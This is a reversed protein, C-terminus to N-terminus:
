THFTNASCTARELDMPTGRGRIEGRQSPGRMLVSPFCDESQKASTRPHFTLSPVGDGKENHVLFVPGSPSVNGRLAIIGRPLYCPSYFCVCWVEVGGVASAALIVKSNRIIGSPGAVIGHLM